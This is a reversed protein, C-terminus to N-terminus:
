CKALGLNEGNLLIHHLCFVFLYFCNHLPAKLVQSLTDKFTLKEM